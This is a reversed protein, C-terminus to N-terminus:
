CGSLFQWGTYGNLDARVDAQLRTLFGYFDKAIVKIVQNYVDYTFDEIRGEPLLFVEESGDTRLAILQGGGDDGFCLIKYDYPASIRTPGYTRFNRLLIELEWIFYGNYINTLYIGNCIKYLSVIQSDYGIGLTSLTSIFENFITPVPAPNIENGNETLIRGSKNLREIDLEMEKLYKKLDM